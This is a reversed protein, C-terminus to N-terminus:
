SGGEIRDWRALPTRSDFGDGFILELNNGVVYTSNDTVTYYGGGEAEHAYFVKLSIFWTGAEFMRVQATEGTADYMLGNPSLLLWKYPDDETALAAPFAVTAAVIIAIILWPM